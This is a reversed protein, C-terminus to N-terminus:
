DTSTIEAKLAPTITRRKLEGGQLGGGGGRWVSPLAATFLYALNAAFRPM